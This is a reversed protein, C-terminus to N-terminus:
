LTGVEDGAPGRLTSGQGILFCTNLEELRSMEPIGSNRIERRLSVQSCRAGVKTMHFFASVSVPSFLLHAFLM